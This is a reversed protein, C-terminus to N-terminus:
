ENNESTETQEAETEVAETAVTDTVTERVKAITAIRIDKDSDINMLKVGSTYRGILSIGSVPMRIIIGGTTIMMIEQQDDVAKAGVVNGTKDTINYCLVGKGGRHQAKFESMLTRKGMGKDSAILLSDGQSDLQMSVVEDDGEMTMGIVGMSTRGTPRIDNENFRICKGNKSVLFIDKTNDTIKVEILEDDVRLTMAIIGTKRINEYEAISTKKIIGKKTAMVLYSDENVERLPIMATIKEGAELQLLNVIAVGRATRSAEPIRYAKMRYVRGKNTFFMIDHHTNTM